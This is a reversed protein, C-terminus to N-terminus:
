VEIVLNSHIGATDIIAHKDSACLWEEIRESIELLNKKSSSKLACEWIILVKWGQAALNQIVIQDRMCNSHIKGLWFNTRTKPIKFLKCNHGHWFCGHVFIIAKYNILVFDPRGSLSKVQTQYTLDLQDLIKALKIEIATGSNRIARMNKSRTEPDHVDAM